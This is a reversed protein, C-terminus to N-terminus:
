LTASEDRRRRHEAMWSRLGEGYLGGLAAALEEPSRQVARAEGALADLDELWLYRDDYVGLYREDPSLAAREQELFAEVQEPDALDEPEVHKVSGYFTRTVEECVGQPDRFLLWARRDDRPSPFYNRKANQEREYHSPYDSWMAAKSAD